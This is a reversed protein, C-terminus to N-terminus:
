GDDGDPNLSDTELYIQPQPHLCSCSISDTSLASCGAQTRLPWQGSRQSELVTRVEEETRKERGPGTARLALLLAWLYDGAAEVRRSQGGREAKTSGVAAGM